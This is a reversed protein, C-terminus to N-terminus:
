LVGLKQLQQRAADPGTYHFARFGAAQAGSVNPESDDLFVARAPEIRFREAARHYIARDPKMLKERGSVLIDRFENLFPYRQRAIPFTEASWNTLAFVPVTVERMLKVTEPISGGLMESWRDYYVRILPGQEPHRAIAEAIGVAFPQGGDHVANWRPPCVHELFWEVQAEDPLLKRYLYRPNWDILVGGLDFVVADM